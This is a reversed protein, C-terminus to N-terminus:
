TLYISYPYSAMSKVVNNADAVGYKVSGDTDIFYEKTYCTKLIRSTPVLKGTTLTNIGISFTRTAGSDIAPVDFLYARSNTGVPNYWAPISTSVSPINQGNLGLTIGAPSSTLNVGATVEVVCTMDQTSALSTGSIEDKLTYSAGETLSTQNTAGGGNTAVQGVTNYVNETVSGNKNFLIQVPFTTTSVDFGEKYANHYTTGNSLFLAVKNGVKSTTTGLTVSAFGQSNTNAKATSTVTTGKQQADLGTVSVVPDATNIVVGNATNQAQPSNAVSQTTGGFTGTKWLAYGGGILAVLILAIIIVGIVAQGKNNKM